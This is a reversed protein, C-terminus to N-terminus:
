FSCAVNLRFLVAAALQNGTFRQYVPLGIDANVRMAKLSLEVGPAALVREFGSATPHSAAPGGDSGRVSVKFQMDPSVKTGGVKWGSYYGGFAADVEAGPRYGAQTLVPIDFVVQTFGSWRMWEGFNLRRFAGLLLDTSGSGLETDRDIDGYADNQAISGTPLKLGVTLGTVFGPSLGTYIGQLRVDGVGSYNLGVRDSGSAGGTTEFHRMEYPIDARMSWAEGLVDQLAFSAVSTRIDRDPNDAAPAEASGSWNRNQDQYLYEVSATVGSDMPLM